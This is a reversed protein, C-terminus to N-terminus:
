FRETYEPNRFRLIQQHLSPNYKKWFTHQVSSYSLNYLCCSIFYVFNQDCNDSVLYQSYINRISKKRWLEGNDAMEHYHLACAGKLIRTWSCLLKPKPIKRYDEELTKSTWVLTFSLIYGSGDDKVSFISFAFEESVKTVLINNADCAM